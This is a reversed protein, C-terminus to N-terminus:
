ITYEAEQELNVMRTEMVTVNALDRNYWWLIMAIVLCSPGEFYPIASHTFAEVLGQDSTMASKWFAEHSNKFFTTGVEIAISVVYLLLLKIPASKLWLRREIESPKRKGMAAFSSLQSFLNGNLAYMSGYLVFAATLWNLISVNPFEGSVNAKILEKRFETEAIPNTAVYVALTTTIAALTGLLATMLYALVSLIRLFVSVFGM